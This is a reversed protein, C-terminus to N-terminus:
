DCTRFPAFAQFEANRDDIGSELRLRQYLPGRRWDSPLRLELPIGAPGDESMRYIGTVHRVARDEVEVGEFEHGPYSFTEVGFRVIGREAPASLVRLCATATPTSRFRLGIAPPEQLGNADLEVLYYASSLAGLTSRRGAVDPWRLLWKTDPRKVFEPEVRTRSGAIFGSLLSEVHRSQYLRLMGLPLVTTAALAIAVAGVTFPLWYWKHRQIWLPSVIGAWIVVLLAFVPIAQLHFYHRDGFQLSPYGGLALLLFVTLAGLRPASLSAVVILMLGLALGWGNWRHLWTYTAAAYSEAPLPRTVISAPPNVFLLNLSSNCAALIRTLEDAPFHRLIEMWLQRGARDYALSGYSTWRGERTETRTRLIVDIYGDDYYPQVRYAPRTIGLGDDFSDAYGLLIVHYSNSGETSFKSLIPYATIGITIALAAIAQAKQSLDTWPREGRFLLICAITIPLMILLDQRFGLGIGIVTGAAVATALMATRSRARSALVIALPIAALFFAGKSYDRVHPVFMLQLSSTSIWLAGVLSFLLPTFLRLTAYVGLVAMVHLTAAVGAVGSWKIGAIKWWYGVALFLYRESYDFQGAPSTQAVADAVSLEARRGTLFEYLASNKAPAPDGFDQGTAITIAPSMWFYDPPATTNQFAFRGYWFATAALAFVVLIELLLRPRRRM